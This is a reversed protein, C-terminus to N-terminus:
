KLDKLYKKEVTALIVYRQGGKKASNNATITLKGDLDKITVNLKHNIVAIKNIQWAKAYFDGKADVNSDYILSYKSFNLGGSYVPLPIDNYSFSKHVFNDWQNQSNFVKIGTPLSNYVDDVYVFGTFAYTFPISGARNISTKSITKKHTNSSIVSKNTYGILILTILLVFLSIAKKMIVIVRRENM